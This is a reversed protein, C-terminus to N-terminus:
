HGYILVRTPAIAELFYPNHIAKLEVLDIARGLVIALGNRLGFFRDAAGRPSQVAFEVLFDLDSSDPDFRDGTASGFLELRSVQNQDCLVSIQNQNAHILDLASSVSMTRNDYGM